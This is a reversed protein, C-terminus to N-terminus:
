GPRGPEPDELLRALRERDELLAFVDRWRERSLGRTPLFPEAFLCLQSLVFSLPQLSILLFRALPGYQEENLIKALWEPPETGRGVQNRM